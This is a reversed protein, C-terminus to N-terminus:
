RRDPRLSQYMWRWLEPSMRLHFVERYLEIIGTEDGPEIVRCIGTTSM